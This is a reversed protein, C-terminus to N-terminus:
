RYSVYLPLYAIHVEERSTESHDTMTEDTLIDSGMLKYIHQFIILVKKHMMFNYIIYLVVSHSVLVVTKEALLFLM